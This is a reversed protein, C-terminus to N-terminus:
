NIKTIIQWKHYKFLFKINILSDLLYEEGDRMLKSSKSELNLNVLIVEKSVLRLSNNIIKKM